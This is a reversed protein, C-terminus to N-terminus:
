TLHPILVGIGVFAPASRIALPPNMLCSLAVTVVLLAWLVYRLLPRRSAGAALLALLAASWAFFAFKGLACVSSRFIWDWEGSGERHALLGRFRQTGKPPVPVGEVQSSWGYLLVVLLTVLLLTKTTGHEFFFLRLNTSRHM